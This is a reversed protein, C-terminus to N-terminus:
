PLTGPGAPLDRTWQWLPTLSPAAVMGGGYGLTRKVVMNHPLIEVRRLRSTNMRIPTTAALAAVVRAAKATRADSAARSRARDFEEFAERPADPRLQKGLVRYLTIGEPLQGPGLLSDLPSLLAMFGLEPRESVTFWGSHGGAAAWETRRTLRKALSDFAAGHELRERTEEAEARTGFLIENVDVQCWERAHDPDLLAFTRFTVDRDPEPAEAVSPLLAQARWAATWMELDHRVDAREDLRRRFGERAMLEGEIVPRLAQSLDHDFRGRRLSGVRIVYFRLDALVDGLTLTGDPLHAFPRDLSDRLAAFLWEPADGPLTLPDHPGARGSDGVMLAHLSDALLVFSTSDLDVRKGALHAILFAAAKSVGNRVRLSDAALRRLRPLESAPAGPKMARALAQIEAPGPEQAGSAIERFLADRVLARRLGARASALAAGGSPSRREAERALLAEAVLSELARAKVTDMSAGAAKEAFPMWEIRQVLDLATIARAGVTALTDALLPGIEEEGHRAAPRSAAPHAPAAPATAGPSPIAAAVLLAFALSCPRLM